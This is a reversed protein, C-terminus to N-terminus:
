VLLEVRSVTVARGGLVGRDGARHMHVTGGRASAQVGVLDTRNLRRGWYGALALTSRDPSVPDSGTTV